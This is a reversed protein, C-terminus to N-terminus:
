FLDIVMLGTSAFGLARLWRQVVCCLASFTDLRHFQSMIMNRTSVLVHECINCLCGVIQKLIQSMNHVKIVYLHILLMLFSINSLVVPKDMRLVDNRWDRNHHGVVVSHIQKQAFVVLQLELPFM